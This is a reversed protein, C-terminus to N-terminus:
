NITRKIIRRRTLSTIVPRNKTKSMMSQKKNTTQKAVRTKNCGCGM